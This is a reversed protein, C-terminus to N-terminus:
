GGEKNRGAGEEGQAGRMSKYLEISEWVGGLRPDGQNVIKATAFNLSIKRSTAGTTEQYGM